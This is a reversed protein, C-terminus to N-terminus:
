FEQCGTKPAYLHPFPFVELLTVYVRAVICTFLMAICSGSAYLCKQLLMGKEKNSTTYVGGMHM